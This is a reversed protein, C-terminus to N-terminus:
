RFRYAFGAAVLYNPVDSINRQLYLDLQLNESLWFYGVEATFINLESIIGSTEVFVGHQPAFLRGVGICYPISNYEFAGVTSAGVNLWYSTEEINLDVLLQLGGGFLDQTIFDVSGLLGVSLPSSENRYLNLKGQVGSGDLTTDVLGDYITIGSSYVRTEFTEHIGYRLLYPTSLIPSGNELGLMQIGAELQTTGKPVVSSGAAVSPRDASIFDEAFSASCLLSFLYM